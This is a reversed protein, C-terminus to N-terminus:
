LSKKSKNSSEFRCFTSAATNVLGDYGATTHLKARYCTRDKIRWFHASHVGTRLSGKYQDTLEIKWGVSGFLYLVVIIRRKGATLPHIGQQIDQVIFHGSEGFPIPPRATEPLVPAYGPHRGNMVFDRFPDFIADLFDENQAKVCHYIFYNFAIKAFARQIDQDFVFCEEVETAAGQNSTFGRFIAGRSNIADILRKQEVEDSFYMTTSKACSLLDLFNARRLIEKETLYIFNSDEGEIVLLGNSQHIELGNEGVVYKCDLPIIKDSRKIQFEVRSSDLEGLKALLKQGTKFRDLAVMSGRTLWLDHNNAFFNNCSACVHGVITLENRFGCLAEPVVHERTFTGNRKKRSQSFEKPTLCYACKRLM